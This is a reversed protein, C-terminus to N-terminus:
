CSCVCMLKIGPSVPTHRPSQPVLTAPANTVTRLNSGSFPYEVASSYDPAPTQVSAPASGPTVVDAVGNHHAPAVPASHVTIQPDGIQIVRDYFGRNPDGEDHEPLSTLGSIWGPRVACGPSDLSSEHGVSSGDPGEVRFRHNPAQSRVERPGLHFAHWWRQIPTEPEQSAKFIPGRSPHVAYRQPPFYFESNDTLPTQSDTSDSRISHQPRRPHRPTTMTDDLTISTNVHQVRRRRQNPMFVPVIADRVRRYHHTLQSSHPSWRRWIIFATFLIVLGVGVIIPTTIQM